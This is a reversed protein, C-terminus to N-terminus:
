TRDPPQDERRWTEVLNRFRRTMRDFFGFAQDIEEDSPLRLTDRRSGAGAALKGRLEANERALRGIEDEYERREDAASRCILGAEGRLCTSIQGTQTDLRIVGGQTPTMSYRPSPDAQQAAALAPIAVLLGAALLFRTM